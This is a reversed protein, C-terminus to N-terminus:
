IHILSLNMVAQESVQQSTLGLVERSDLFIKGTKASSASKIDESM